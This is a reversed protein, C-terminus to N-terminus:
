NRVDRLQWHSGALWRLRTRLVTGTLRTNVELDIALSSQKGEVRAGPDVEGLLPDIAEPDPQMARWREFLAPTRLAAELQEALGEASNASFSLESETGRAAAPDPLTLFYRAM